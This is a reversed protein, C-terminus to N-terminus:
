SPITCRVSPTAHSKSINGLVEETANSPDMEKLLSVQHQLAEGADDLVRLHGIMIGEVHPPIHISPLNSSDGKPNGLREHWFTESTSELQLDLCIGSLYEKTANCTCGYVVAFYWILIM